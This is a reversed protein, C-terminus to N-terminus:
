PASDGGPWSGERLFHGCADAVAGLVLAIVSWHVYRIPPSPPLRSPQHASWHFGLVPGWIVILPLVMALIASKGRYGSLGALLTGATFGFPLLWGRPGDQLTAILSFLGMAVAALLLAFKEQSPSM